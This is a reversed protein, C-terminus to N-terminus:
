KDDPPGNLTQHTTPGGSSHHHMEFQAQHMSLQRRTAPVEGMRVQDDEEEDEEKREDLM